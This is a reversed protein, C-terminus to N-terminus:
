LLRTLPLKVFFTTGEGLTSEVDVSGKHLEIIKKAVSLGLGFGKINQKSRSSDARYFRDFIYPLADKSIGIGTDSIEIVAKGGEIRTSVSVSGNETYKVANDLFISVMEELGQKYAVLTMDSLNLKLELGKDKARTEFKKVGNKIVEKLEFESFDLHKENETYQSLILLNNALDEIEQLDELSSKLVNQQARLDTNKDRLAVEISTKLATLPTRLEHSSDAVFRKQEEMAEEIPELTKGALFYGAGASFFWIVVDMMVLRWLLRRRAEVLNENCSPCLDERSVRPDWEELRRPLRRPMPIDLERAKQVAAARWFGRELEVSVVKYVLVSFFSSVLISILLYLLTLKIRAFNFIEM